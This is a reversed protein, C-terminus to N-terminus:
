RAYSSRYAHYSIFMLIFFVPNILVPNTGAAIFAGILALGLAKGSILLRWAILGILVSFAVFWPLGFKRIANLHDVEINTVRQGAGESFFDTGAGAGLWLYLPNEDFFDALSHVHGVRVQATAHDGSVASAIEDFYGPAIKFIVLTLLFIVSIPILRSTMTAKSSLFPFLLLFGISILFGAKSFSAILALLCMGSRLLRETYLFYVFAPVLFLTARGYVNPLLLEGVMRQGFYGQESASLYEVINQLSDPFLLILSYLSLIIISFIYLVLFFLSVPKSSTSCSILLFAIIGTVFPTIQNFALSFDAGQIVGWLLSWMPWVLFLVGGILIEHATLKIQSRAFILYTIALAYSSYKLYFTGGMDFINCSFFVLLVLRYIVDTSISYREVMSSM